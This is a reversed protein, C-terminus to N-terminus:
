SHMLKKKKWTSVMNKWNSDVADDDEDDDDLDLDSFHNEKASSSQLRKDVGLDWRSLTKKENQEKKRGVTSGSKGGRVPFDDFILIAMLLAM